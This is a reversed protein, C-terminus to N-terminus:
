RCERDDHQDSGCEAEDNQKSKKGRKAKRGGNKKDEKRRVM